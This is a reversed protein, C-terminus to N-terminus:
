SKDEQIATRYGDLDGGNFDGAWRLVMRATEIPDNGNKFAEESVIAMRKETIDNARKIFKWQERITYGHDSLWTHLENKWEIFTM